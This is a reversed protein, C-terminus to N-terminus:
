SVLPVLVTAAITTPEPADRLKLPVPVILAEVKSPLVQALGCAIPVPVAAAPVNVFRVVVVPPRFRFLLPIVFVPEIAPAVVIVAFLVIVVLPLMVVVPVPVIVAAFPRVTEAPPAVTVPDDEFVPENLRAPAALGSNALPADPVAPCTSILPPAPVVGPQVVASVTAVIGNPLMVDPVFAFARRTLPESAGVPPPVIM